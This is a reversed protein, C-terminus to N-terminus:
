QTLLNLSLSYIFLFYADTFDQLYNLYVHSMYDRIMTSILTCTSTKKLNEFDTKM